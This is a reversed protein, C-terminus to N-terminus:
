RRVDPVAVTQVKSDDLAEGRQEAVTGPQPTESPVVWQLVIADESSPAVMELFETAIREIRKPSKLTEIELRLHRNIELEKAREAQVDGIDYGHQRLEQYQWGSFLVVMVLFVGIGVWRVNERLRAPDVERVIPSNRIDRKIDREFDQQHRSM